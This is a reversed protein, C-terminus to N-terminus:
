NPTKVQRAMDRFMDMSPGPRRRSNSARPLLYNPAFTGETKPEVKGNLAPAPPNPQAEIKVKGNGSPVETVPEPDGAKPRELTAVAAQAPEPQKANAQSDAKVPEPKKAQEPKKAETAPQTNGSEDLELFYGKSKKPKPAISTDGQSKKGGGLIGGFFAAIGGFLKKIFGFM